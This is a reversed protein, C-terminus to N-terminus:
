HPGWFSSVTSFLLKVLIQGEMVQGSTSNKKKNKPQLNKEDIGKM